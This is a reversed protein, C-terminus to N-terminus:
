PGASGEPADLLTEAEEATITGSQVMRLVALREEDSVPEPAPRVNDRAVYGRRELAKQIQM